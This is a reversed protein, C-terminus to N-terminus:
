DRGGDLWPWVELSRLGLWWLEWRPAEASRELSRDLGLAGVLGLSRVLSLEEDESLM